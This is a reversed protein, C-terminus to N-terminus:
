RRRVGRVPEATTPDQPWSHKPYRGRLEARVAPYGTRWFSALDSTVAAPRGAPSLLHLLVPVRGGAVAPPGDWGLVEQVRVALVPQEGSWDLRLSSGSPVTVREPALEDLRGAEPWPLLGRLGSTTDLRALDARRRVRELGPLWATASEVLAEDSVDPWPAGLVRHLFAVRERLSRGAPSWRLVGLGERRLGERVARAVADAPPDRLPESVLVVAGLRRVTRAVVDGGSWSVEQEERLLAGAAAVAVDETTAVGSRVVGDARGVPRQVEAVALWPAGALPSGGPLTVATGGAMLYTGDSGPRRRAVREPYATAVVTAARVDDPLRVRGPPSASRAARDGDVEGGVEGEVVRGVEGGVERLLRAVLDRWPREGARRADRWAAVVDGQVPRDGALLAVVEAAERAGVAPAAALLARALRPHAPVAAVRRGIETVRGDGDVAGLDRLVEEAVDVAAAPPASPLRSGRGRPSGWCALELLFATLDSQDVAPPPHSPLRDHEAPSWCRVVTGPGERHARGARQEAEARSLRTTVLASMGRALDTRPRRALGADVVVRVGPVTLSSEALATSVVVRRRPGPRLAADQQAAPLRGHLPVVDVAGDGAGDGTGDGTGDGAGGRGGDLVDGLLRRVDDVERAGPVVVLADGPVERLTSATVAAVHRLLAPDVWTGHAPRTSAPPPAWRVELPHVPVTATVVTAPATPGALVQAFVDAQATASTALVALDERLTGRVDALMALLLDTELHREHCEDVVVASVGALDPDRQLRRLLVGTTVVEVRTSAGAQRQGRVAFGVAGGVRDGVLAAMRAAAARAAVRRPEAVLVVGDTRDALVLPVVTTKGTGPPAVLVAARGGDRPPPGAPGPVGLAALLEPLVAVVPLDPPHPLLM